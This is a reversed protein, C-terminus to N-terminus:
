SGVFPLRTFGHAQQFGRVPCASVLCRCVRVFLGRCRGLAPRLEVVGVNVNLFSVRRLVDRKREEAGQKLMDSSSIFM